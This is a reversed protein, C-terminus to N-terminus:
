LPYCWVCFTAKFWLQNLVSSSSTDDACMDVFAPMATFYTMWMFFYFITSWCLCWASSQMYRTCSIEAHRRRVVHKLLLHWSWLVTNWTSARQGDFSALGNFNNGCVM